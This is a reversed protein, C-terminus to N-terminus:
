GLLDELADAVEHMDCHAGYRAVSFIGAGPDTNVAIVTDAGKIGALHQSAGSIGFALYVKPAVTKGSQGVQRSAPMWGADVIPRSVGFAAGLAGALDQYRQLEEEDGVGRGVSLIIEANEIGADDATAEVFDVHATRAAGLDIPRTEIAGSGGGEAAAFEGPRLTVMAAGPSLEIEGHVKGGYFAREALIIDGDHSLGLVDTVLGLNLKAAVAAAFSMAQATQGTLVLAPALSSILSAAAVAHGDSDFEGAPVNIVKTVGGLAAAQEAIPAPGIAAVVPAYGLGTAATVAQATIPLLTGQRHEAIVLAESM